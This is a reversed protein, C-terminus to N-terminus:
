ALNLLLEYILADAYKVIVSLRFLQEAGEDPIPHQVIPTKMYQTEPIRRDTKERILLHVAGHQKALTKLNHNNKIMLILKHAILSM